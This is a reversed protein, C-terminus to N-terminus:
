DSPFYIINFHFYLLLGVSLFDILPHLLREKVDHKVEQSFLDCTLIERIMSKM